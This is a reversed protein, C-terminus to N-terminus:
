HVFFSDEENQQCDRYDQDYERNNAWDVNWGTVMGDRSRSRDGLSVGHRQRVFRVDACEDSLPIGHRQRVFRVDACEDGLPIGHRQRVFRVDACEDGLPVGHRQRVLRPQCLRTTTKLVGLM